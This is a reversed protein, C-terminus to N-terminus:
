NYVQALNSGGRPETVSVRPETRVVVRLGEASAVLDPPVSGRSWAEPEAPGIGPSRSGREEYNDDEEQDEVEAGLNYYLQFETRGLKRSTTSAVDPSIYLL